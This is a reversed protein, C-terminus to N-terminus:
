SALRLNISGNLTKLHLERGGVGIRGRLHKRSKFTVLNIPFDSNIQGNLTEADVETSVNAPLDLNIEGNLTKFTLEKPWNADGFKASIEGNITTAEAYGTTAIKISGNITKAIVNGSLGTASVEGNVTRGEFGVSAPVRVTFDVRVDNNNVGSSAARNRPEGIGAECENSYGHETPYLACITVGGAHQVVKVQVQNVDSRRSTKTAIVQVENGSAADARIDGNIGKIEITQGQAVTGNWRFEGSQQSSQVFENVAVKEIRVRKVRTRANATPVVSDSWRSVFEAADFLLAQAQNLEKMASSFAVLGIALFLVIRAWKKERIQDSQMENM